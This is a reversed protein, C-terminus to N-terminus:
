LYDKDHELELYEIEAKKHAEMRQIVQDIVYDEYESLKSFGLYGLVAFVHKCCVQKNEFAIAQNEYDSCNCKLYDILPEITYESEKQPNRVLYNKFGTELVDLGESSELRKNEIVPKIEERTVTVSDGDKLLVEASNANNIVIQKIDKRDLWTAIAINSFNFITHSM